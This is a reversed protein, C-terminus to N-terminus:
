GPLQVFFSAGKKEESECWIKGQMAEVFKKVISLGLGTSTEDATPRASLKQYKGFLKQKDSETLGPGEDKIECVVTGSSKHLKIFVNKNPQSFKIANSLLNELVQDTYGKDVQATIKDPLSSQISINKKEATLSYRKVLNEVLASLDVEEITLNLKKSEIAEVDLIKAIMDSLRGSSAEMMEIYNLTEETLNSTTLKMISLLGKIQNLPSKLDHAVIGILNNKENNLNLLEKNKQLIEDKQKEMDRHMQSITENAEHLYDSQDLLSEKQLELAENKEVLEQHIAQLKQAQEQIKAQQVMLEANKMSIEENAEELKDSVVLLDKKKYELLYNDSTLNDQAKNLNEIKIELRRTRKKLEQQFFPYLGESKGSLTDLTKAVKLKEKRIFQVLKQDATKLALSEAKELLKNVIEQHKKISKKFDQFKNM